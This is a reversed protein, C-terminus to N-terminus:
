FSQQYGITVGGRERLRIAEDHFDSYVPVTYEIGVRSTDSIVPLFINMGLGVDAVLSETNTGYGPSMAVQTDSLTSDRGVINGTYAVSSRISGSLRNKMFPYAIWGTWGYQNGLRYNYANKGLRIRMSAQTGLSVRSLYYVGTVRSTVDLTGSGLQMGYPLHVGADNSENISGVPLGVGINAIWRHHPSKTITILSGVQIDSLGEVSRSSNSTNIAHLTSVPSSMAMAMPMDKKISTMSKNIYGIMAVFTVTDTYGWMWGAMAMTMHMSKPVMSFGLDHIADNASLASQGHYLDSMSMTKVRFSVMQEGKLHNHDAMVGIPAHGDPRHGPSGWGIISLILTLLIYRM